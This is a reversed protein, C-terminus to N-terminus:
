KSNLLSEGKLDDRIIRYITAAVPVGLLMGAIGMIGGGITVAALVWLGPLGISNGVVRPYILNGELQQLVVIYVLFVLAKVPSVTLIMLAGVAAGIYSGVIPVLATFGVLAGIMPAYPLGIVLMGLACLVGLIVAEVCQGVIYRHFCDNLINLVYLIKKYATDSLYHKIVRNFQLKLRDKASLIYVAFIISLVTTLIGSFVTSVAKLAVNMVNGVGTTLMEAIEGIRSKWDIEMLFEAINDPVINLEVTKAALYSLASPLEKLLLQLCSIFQPLVIGIVLSIIAIITLFAATMCVPRRTKLVIAKGSKPFYLREYINMLINVFYATIAGIILPVAASLMLSILEAVKQWYNICLYLVFVAIGIKLYERLGIKM